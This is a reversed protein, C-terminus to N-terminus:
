PGYVVEANGTDATRLRGSGALESSDVLKARAVIRYDASGEPHCSTLTLYSGKSPYENVVADYDTPEVVWPRSMIEYVHRGLPTTLVVKDGPRLEDMRNFPKGYTTRHGAIAVNGKEGPLPTEPYHGAGSRLAAQSSGEVVITDVELAPIEMRTLPDGVGSRGLAYIKATGTEAFERVLEGQIRSAWLDTAFPYAVLGVGGLALLIALGTLLRRIARTSLQPLRM